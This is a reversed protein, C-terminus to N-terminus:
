PTWSLEMLQMDSLEIWNAPFTRVRRVAFDSNFILSTGSRRDYDGFALEYVRWHAGDADIVDRSLPVSSGASSHVSIKPETM